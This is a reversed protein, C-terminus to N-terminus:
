AYGVNARCMQSEWILNRKVALYYGSIKEGLAHKQSRQDTPYHRFPTERCGVCLDMGHYCLCKLVRERGLPDLSMQGVGCMIQEDQVVNDRPLGDNLAEGRKVIRLFPTCSVGKAEQDGGGDEASQALEAVTLYDFVNLFVSVHLVKAIDGIVAKHGKQVGRRKAPKSFAEAFLAGQDNLLLDKRVEFAARDDVGVHHEHVGGDQFARDNIGSVDPEEILGKVFHRGQGSIGLEVQPPIRGVDFLAPPGVIQVLLVAEGIELFEGGHKYGGQRAKCRVEFVKRFAGQPLSPAVQKRHQTEELLLGLLFQCPLAVNVM